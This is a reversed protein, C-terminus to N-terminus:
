RKFRNIAHRLLINTNSFKELSFDISNFVLMLSNNSGTEFNMNTDSGCVGILHNQNSSTKAEWYFKGTTNGITGRIPNQGSGNGSSTWTNNGNAITPATGVM